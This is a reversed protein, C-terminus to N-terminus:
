TQAYRGINVLWRSSLSASLSGTPLTNKAVDALELTKVHGGAPDDKAAPISEAVAMAGVISDLIEHVADLLQEKSLNRHTLSRAVAMWEALIADRHANIFDAIKLHLVAASTGRGRLASHEHATGRNCFVTLNHAKGAASAIKPVQMRAVPDSVAVRAAFFVDNLNVAHVARRETASCGGDSALSVDREGRDYLQSM